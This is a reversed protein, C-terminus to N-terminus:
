VLIGKLWDLSEQYAKRGNIFLDNHGAFPIVLLRKEEAPCSEYLKRAESVDIIEDNEGHVILAPKHFRSIKSLNKLGNEEIFGIASIDLGLNELLPGTYAFGSDIIMGGLKEGYHSAIELASASGLSRGMVVLPAYMGERFLWDAVHRFIIHCDRMMATVFPIGTSFGYGRYDVPLFNFGVELFFSAFDDYDSVIEGNGHFFLINPASRDVIHCKGGVIVKEEVPILITKVQDSSPPIPEGGRPYFLYRNVSRIDLISYDIESFSKM